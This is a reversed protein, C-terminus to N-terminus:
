LNKSKKGLSAIVFHSREATIVFLLIAHKGLNKTWFTVLTQLSFIRDTFFFEYFFTFFINKGFKKTWFTVLTQLSFFGTLLFFIMVSFFYKGWIQQNLFHSFDATSFIRDGLIRCYFFNNVVWNKTWLFHSFGATFFIRDSPSRIKM